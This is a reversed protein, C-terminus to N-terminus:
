KNTKSTKTTKSTKSVKGTAGAGGSSADGKPGYTQTGVGHAALVFTMLAQSVGGNPSHLADTVDKYLLPTFYNATASKATVKKNDFSTGTAIDTIAGLEPSAKTRAFRLLIDGRSKQKFGGDQESFLQKLDSNANAKGFLLRALLVVYQKSGGWIDYKTDGATISGFDSNYPNLGVKLGAAASLSLITGGLALFKTMDKFYEVRIEKPVKMYFVPNAFNTLLQLKAAYLRLSYVFHAIVPAANQLKEGLIGRGVLQNAYKATAKYLDPSNAFTKGDDKFKDALENAIDWKMKNAISTAARHSAKVGIKVGPIKDAYSSQFMEEKASELNSIPDAFDLGAEKWMEYRPDNHIDDMIARFVKESGFSRYMKGFQDALAKQSKFNDFSWTGGKKTFPLALLQRALGPLTQRYPYSVDFSSQLTRGTKLTKSVVGVGKELSSRNGYEQKLLRLVREEKLELYKDRLDKGEKDLAIPERKAEPKYDGKAIKEELEKIKSKYRGKLSSLKEAESRDNLGMEDKLGKIKQRLEDIRQNRKILRKESTPIEGNQLQELENMLRAEQRLNYLQEALQTRTQKKNYEGAIIDHVDGETIEPLLAKIQKHVESIVDPLKEVGEEVVNAVLKMVEPAIKSLKDATSRGKLSDFVEKSNGSGKEGIIDQLKSNDEEQLASKISDSLRKLDDISSFRKDIGLVEFVRNIFDIVKTITKESLKSTDIKGDAVLAMFETIAEVKQVKLGRNSYYQEHEWVDKMGPDDKFASLREYLNDLAASKKGIIENIIPHIIEHFITHKANYKNIGEINFAIRRGVPDYMGVSGAPRNENSEYEASKEYAKVEIDPFFEKLVSTAKRLYENTNNDSVKNNVKNQLKDLKDGGQLKKKINDIIVKREEKYDKKSDKKAAKSQKEVEKEAKLKMKEAEMKAVKEELADKAAKIEHYEKTSKATQEETLPAGKNYDIDTLHYDALSEEVPVSGRRAALEKGKERGSIDFLSKTRKIENLLGPTPNKEYKAMLDGMHMLMMRTEVKDVGEGNRLKQMLNDLANPDKAFRERAQKDWLAVTEPDKDYTDFGLSKAIEDTQAHTIGTTRPNEVQGKGGETNSTEGLRPEEVVPQQLDSGRQEKGSPLEDGIQPIQGEDSRIAGAYDESKVESNIKTRQVEPINGDTGKETVTSLGSDEIKRKISEDSNIFDEFATRTENNKAIEKLHINYAIDEAVDGRFTRKKGDHTELNVSVVDGNKDRNIAMLPDSYNNKYPNGRVSIDGNDNIGVISSEHSIGFDKISKDKVENINGIEYEKNAGKVKFVITQGDQYFSGKEGKYSGQKDLLEGVTIPPEEKPNLEKAKSVIKDGFTDITAQETAPDHAQESIDKFYTNLEKETANKLVDGANGDIKDAEKSVLSQLEGHESGKSINVIDKDLNKIEENIEPHYAKHVTELTSELADRQKIKAQVKLRDPESVEPLIQGDIKKQEQLANQLNNAEEPTVQKTEQLQSLREGIAEEPMKSLGHLLGAYTKPNFLKPSKAALTMGATMLAGMYLQEKVGQSVDTPIGARKAMINKILQGTGGVAGVGLGELAKKATEEGVQKLASGVSKQLLGAGLGTPKFAFKGGFAAMGAGTAADVNAQKHSLDIAKQLADHDSLDPHQKKLAAYNQPLANAFGLKYMEPASIAAMAATGAEPGGFYGAIAGGVIPKIPQGGLMAGAEGGAGSPVVMAEDPDQNIKKNLLKLIAAEDGTKYVDYDNYADVKQKYGTVLSSFFGEPKVLLGHKVDYDLDGSNLKEINKSIKTEKEPNNQRDLRYVDSKLQNAASPDTKTLDKVRQGLAQRLMLPNNNMESKFQEVEEPNVPVDQRLKHELDAAQQNVPAAEFPKNIALEQSKIRGTMDKKYDYIINHVSQDINQLHNKVRDTAQATNRTHDDIAVANNKDLPQYGQPITLWDSMSKFAPTSEQQAAKPQENEPASYKTKFDSVVAHITEEPEKNAIMQSVISDLKARHQDALKPKPIPDDAVIDQENEAM